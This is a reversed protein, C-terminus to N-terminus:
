INLKEKVKLFLYDDIEQFELAKEFNIKAYQLMSLYKEENISLLIDKLEKATEFIIIGREDFFDGINPCGWYIPITGTVFCDLIKDCYYNKVKSNEIAIQFMYDVCADGKDQLYVGTGSGFLDIRESFGIKPILKEAIAFRLKHGPLQKKHSYIMSILKNKSHIKYYKEDLISVDPPLFVYKEGRSLLDEDYTFILDYHDEFKRAAEYILPMFSKPEQLIAIKYDSKVQPVLQLMKDTFYTIGNWPNQDRVYEVLKPKPWPGKPNGCALASALFSYQLATQDIRNITVKEEVM